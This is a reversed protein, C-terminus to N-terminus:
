ATAEDRGEDQEMRRLGDHQARELKEHLGSPGVEHGDGIAQERMRVGLNAGGREPGAGMDLGIGGEQAREEVVLLARDAGGREHCQDGTTVERAVVRALPEVLECAAGGVHAAGERPGHPLHLDLGRAAAHELVRQEGEGSAVIGDCAREGRGRHAM